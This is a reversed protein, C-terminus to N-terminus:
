SPVLCPTKCLPTAAARRLPIRIAINMYSNSLMGLKGRRLAAWPAAASESESAV